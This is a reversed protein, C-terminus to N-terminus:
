DRRAEFRRKVDRWTTAQTPDDRYAAFRQDLKIHDQRVPFESSKQIGFELALHSLSKEQEEATLNEVASEMEALTSM